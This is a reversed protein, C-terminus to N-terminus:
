CSPLNAAAAGAGATSGSGTPSGSAASNMGTQGSMSGKTGSASGSAGSGTTAAGSGSKGSKGSMASKLQVQGNADRCHTAASVKGSAGTTSNMNSQASAGATMMLTAASAILALKAANM